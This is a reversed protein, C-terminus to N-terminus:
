VPTGPPPAADLERALFRGLNTASPDTHFVVRPSNKQQHVSSSCDKETQCHEREGDEHATQEDPRGPLISFFVLSHLRPETDPAPRPESALAQGPQHRAM